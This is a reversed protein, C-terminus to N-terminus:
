DSTTVLARVKTAYPRTLAAWSLHDRAYAFARQSMGRRQVPDAILRDIASRFDDRDIVLGAGHEVVSFGRAGQPTNITPLGHAMFDPLKLSSGGGSTVPNLALAWGSLVESKTFDDIIGHVAVNPAQERGIAEGVGGVFEFLVEPFAPVLEDLIFRAAEVNPRHGSGLFGVRFVKSYM